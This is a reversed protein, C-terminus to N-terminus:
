TEFHYWSVQSTVSLIGSHDWSMDWYTQLNMVTRKHSPKLVMEFLLGSFSRLPVPYRRPHGPCSHGAKHYKQSIKPVDGPCGSLDQRSSGLITELHGQITKLLNRPYTWILGTVLISLCWTNHPHKKPHTFFMVPCNGSMSSVNELSNQSIRMCTEYVIYM